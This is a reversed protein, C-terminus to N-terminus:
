KWTTWSKQRVGAAGDVRAPLVLAQGDVSFRRTRLAGDGPAKAISLM